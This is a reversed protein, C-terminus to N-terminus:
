FIFSIIRLFIDYYVFYRCGLFYNKIIKPSLKKTFKLLVWVLIATFTSRPIYVWYRPYGSYFKFKGFFESYYLTMSLSMVMFFVFLTMIYMVRYKATPEFLIRVLIMLAALIGWSILSYWGSYFPPGILVLNPSLEFFTNNLFILVSVVFLCIIYIYLRKKIASM